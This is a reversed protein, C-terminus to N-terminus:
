ENEKTISRLGAVGDVPLSFVSANAETGPGAKTLIANMLRDRDERRSVIYIMEKEAALTVNLFKKTGSNGTGKVHLVTGGGAGESRAADMVTDVSGKEAIVILLSWTSPELVPMPEEGGKTLTEYDVSTIRGLSAKGGIADAPVTLAIGRGPMALGMEVVLEKLLKETTDSPVLAQFMVKEAKELGLVKLAQERVTGEVPVSFRTSIKRHEFFNKFSDEDKRQVICFFLKLGTM